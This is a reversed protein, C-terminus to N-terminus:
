LSGWREFCVVNCYYHVYFLVSRYWRVAASENWKSWICHNSLCKIHWGCVINGVYLYM